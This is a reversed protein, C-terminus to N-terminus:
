GTKENPKSYHESTMTDLQTPANRDEGLLRWAIAEWDIKLIVYISAIIMALTILSLWPIDSEYLLSNFLPSAGKGALAILTTMGIKGIVMPFFMRWFNYRIMGLPIILIDDPLPSIGFLFIIWPLIKPRSELIRRLAQFHSQYKKWIIAGGALGTIYSTLEGLGGGIGALLGLIFINLGISGLYVIIITYPIPIIVTTHALFSVVAGGLYGHLQAYRLTVDWVSRSWEKFDPSYLVFLSIGVFFAIALVLFIEEPGFRRQSKKFIIGLM